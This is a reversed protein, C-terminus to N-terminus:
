WRWVGTTRGVQIAASVLDAGKRCGPVEWGAKILAQDAAAMAVTEHVKCGEIEYGRPVPTFIDWLYVVEATGTTTHFQCVEAIVAGKDDKRELRSGHRKWPGAVKQSLWRAPIM